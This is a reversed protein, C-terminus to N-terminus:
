KTSLIKPLGGVVKEIDGSKFDGKKFAHNVAVKGKSYLIVTVDADKAIKWAKPGAVNDVGLDVNKATKGLDKLKSEMKEDDSLMVVCARLKADKNKAVETDLKKVLGTL